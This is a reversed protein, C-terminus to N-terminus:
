TGKTLLDTAAKFVIRKPYPHQFEAAPKFVVRRQRM